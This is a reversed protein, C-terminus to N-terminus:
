LTATIGAGPVCHPSLCHHSHSETSELAGRFVQPEHSWSSPPEPSDRHEGASELSQSSTCLLQRAM